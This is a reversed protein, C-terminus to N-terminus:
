MKRIVGIVKGAIAFEDDGKEAYFPEMSDNEPVLKWRTKEDYIRKVTAEGNIIAVGIEGNSVQPQHRVIVMDGNFIGVKMMSDGQVELAFTEDSARFFGPLTLFDEFHQEALIPEGAAVRGILPIGDRRRGQSVSSKTKTLNSFSRARRGGRELVGATEMKRIHYDVTNTSKFNMHSAIERVSPYMGTLEHQARIFELIKQQKEPLKEM